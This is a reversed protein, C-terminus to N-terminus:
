VRMNLNFIHRIVVKIQLNLNVGLFLTRLTRFSFLFYSLVFYTDTIM